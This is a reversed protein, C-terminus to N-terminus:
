AMYIKTLLQVEKDLEPTIELPYFYYDNLIELIKETWKCESENLNNKLKSYIYKVRIDASPHSENKTKQYIENNEQILQFLTFIELLMSFDNAIVLPGKALGKNKFDIIWKSAQLDAALELRQDYTFFDFDIDNEELHLSEIKAYDLHGLYIHAFEHAIIFLEQAMAVLVAKEKIDEPLEYIPLGSKGEFFDVLKQMYYRMFVGALKEDHERIKGYILLSETRFSLAAMLREYVVVVPTLTNPVYQCFANPSCIPIVGVWIDGLLQQISEDLSKLFPEVVAIRFHVANFKHIDFRSFHKFVQPYIKELEPPVPDNPSVFDQNISSVFDMSQHMKSYYELYQKKLFSIHGNQEETSDM